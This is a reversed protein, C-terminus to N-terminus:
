LGSGEDCPTPNTTPTDIDTNLATFIVSTERGRPASGAVVTVKLRQRNQGADAPDTTPDVKGHAPDREFRVSTIEGALTTWGAPNPTTGGVWRLQQLRTGNQRMRYCVTQGTEVVEYAVSTQDQSPEGIGSSYRIQRDLRLMALSVTSQAVNRQETGGVLRFFQLLGATVLAMVVTMITMAVTLELMTTGADDAAPRDTRMSM